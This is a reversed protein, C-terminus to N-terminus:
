RKNNGQNVFDYMKQATQLIQELGPVQPMGVTTVFQGTKEDRATSMEWGQFKASYEFEAMQKAMGLIETRIEYGNKNFKVEPMTVKQTLGNFESM